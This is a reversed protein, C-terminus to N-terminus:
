HAFIQRMRCTLREIVDAFTPQYFSKKAIRHYDLVVYIEYCPAFQLDPSEGDRFCLGTDGSVHDDFPVVSIHEGRLLDTVEQITTTGEHIKDFNARTIVRSSPVFLRSAPVVAISLVPLLIILLWRRSFRKKM